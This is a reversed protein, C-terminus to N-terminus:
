LTGDQDSADSTGAPPPGFGHHPGGEPMTGNVFDTFRQKANALLQDSQAQTLRGAAVAADLEKKEDAVLASVLGDVTKGQATAVEALTKGSQLQTQLETASLGLYAAAADLHPFGHGGPGGHHGFGPGGLLPYDESEIRQKMADGQAKTISGAAVAADIRNEYAQKLANSLQSPTVGLRGAADDIVAKSEQQPNVIGSAALAAGAGAVAVAAVGAAVIRRRM